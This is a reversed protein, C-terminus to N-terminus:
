NANFGMVAKIETFEYLGAKGWERGNGSQRYGGFPASPDAVAGNLHIMGARIRRAIAQARGLDASEVYAALGFSTDNAIEVAQDESEFAMVSLVPGFIEERAIRMQPTVHGFVTPRVYFGKELGAPRGLGGTVLTAGEDLGSKIYAQISNWQAASVVPGLITADDRPDGTLTQDAALKAINLAEEMREIPVLMRSPSNCSQGSNRFCLAVGRMISDELDVDDLLINPSKGGLEQGVRKISPAAAQAVAIGGRTSGTFSIMDINPHAAMAAGVNPGTGQIMNFVGKPVGAEELIEALIIAPGPAYESPKLIMTCGTALAPAVKCTIQNMPWNWPVIMGIVGIPERIIRTSGLNDELSLSVLLRLVEKFHSLGAGAQFRKAFTLPAGMQECISAGIDDFRLKYLEIVRELLCKREFLPMEAFSPFAERAAIVAQDVTTATGLMVNQIPRETAPNILMMPTTNAPTVWAGDIYFQRNLDM